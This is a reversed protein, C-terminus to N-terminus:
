TRTRWAHKAKEWPTRRPGRGYLLGTAFGFVLPATALMAEVRWPRDKPPDETGTLVALGWRPFTILYIMVALTAGGVLPHVPRREHVLAYLGGWGAAYGFHFASAALWKMDEPLSKHARRALAQMLRPGVDASEDRGRLILREMLKPVLVQPIGAVLGAEVGRRLVETRHDNM